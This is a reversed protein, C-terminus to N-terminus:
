DRICILPQSKLLPLIELLLKGALIAVRSVMDCGLGIEFMKIKKHRLPAFYKEYMEEYHHSTVKDTGHGQAIEYFSPEGSSKFPWIKNTADTIASKIEESQGSQQHVFAIIILIVAAAGVYLIATNKPRAIVM